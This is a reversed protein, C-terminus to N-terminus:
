VQTSLSPLLKEIKIRCNTWTTKLLVQSKSISKRVNFGRHPHFCKVIEKKSGHKWFNLKKRFGSFSLVNESPDYLTKDLQNVPYPKKELYTVNMAVWERWFLCFM